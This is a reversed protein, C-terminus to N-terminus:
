QPLGGIPLADDRIGLSRYLALNINESLFHVSGDAMMMHCGGQHHSSFTRTMVTWRHDGADGQARSSNIAYQSGAVNAHFGHTGNDGRATGSWPIGTGAGTGTYSTNTPHSAMSQEGVLFVNSTGDTLHSMRISSNLFFAGNRFNPYTSSCGTEPTGGGSVGYYHNGPYGSTSLPSSPCHYKTMTMRQPTQNPASMGASWTYGFGASFDFQDYLASEEMFPLILVTWPAGHANPVSSTRDSARCNSSVLGRVVNGPPFCTHTDHYNHLALGIQKMNNKCASRRAAERAQQVAPLLLAVLIAIIAIVVLLEILTFGGRLSSLKKMLYRAQVFYPVLVGGSIEARPWRVLLQPFYFGPKEAAVPM